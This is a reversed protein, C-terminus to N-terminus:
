KKLSENKLKVQRLYEVLITREIGREFKRAAREFLQQGSGLNSQLLENYQLEQTLETIRGEIAEPAEKDLQPALKEISKKVFLAEAQNLKQLQEKTNQLQEKTLEGPVVPASMCKFAGLRAAYPLTVGLRKLAGCASVEAMGAVCLLSTLIILKKNM